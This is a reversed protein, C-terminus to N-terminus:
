TSTTCAPAEEADDTRVAVLALERGSVVRLAAGCQHCRFRLERVPAETGCADCAGVLPVQEIELTAAAFETGKALCEFAFRLADANVGALEGLQLRLARVTGHAQGRLAQSAAELLRVALGAEHM